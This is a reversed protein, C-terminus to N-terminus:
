AKKKKLVVLLVAAGALLVAAGVAIGVIVGVPVDATEDPTEEVAPVTTTAATTVATTVTATPVTTTAVTTTTATTTTTTATTTTATTATTRTVGDDIFFAAVEGADVTATFAAIDSRRGSKIRKGSMMETVTYTANKVDSIGMEELPVTVEATLPETGPNAVIVFGRGDAYRAYAGGLGGSQGNVEVHCINTERHNGPWYEFIEPYSRRIRIMQKVDEYFARNEPDDMTEWNISDTFCMGSWTNNWETGIYWLPIFPAFIAQYGFAIRNGRAFKDHNDHNSLCYTYYTYCGGFGDQQSMKSGIGRGTKCAEVINMKQMFYDRYYTYHNESTEDVGVGFQEFVFSFVRENPIESFLAVKRGKEWCRDVIDAFANYGGSDPALDVRFGDAGTRLLVNASADVFWEYFNPDYFHFAPGGWPSMENFWEPFETVIPANSDCGWAVLDFFIRIGRAHAKDVFAKVVKWSDEYNDCGTLRWWVTEPGYNGYGNAQILNDASRNRDYIPTIWLGNVGMEAYHDLVREAAQFTGEPTATEIRLEALILTDVWEPVPVTVTESIPMDIMKVESDPLLPPILDSNDIYGSEASASLPLVTLLLLATLLLCLSRKM